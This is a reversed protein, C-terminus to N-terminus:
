KSSSKCMYNRAMKALREKAEDNHVLASAKKTQMETM